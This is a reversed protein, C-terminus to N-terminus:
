PISAFPGVAIFADVYRLEVVGHWRSPQTHGIYLIVKTPM